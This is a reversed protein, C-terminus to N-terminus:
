SGCKSFSSMLVEFHLELSSFM